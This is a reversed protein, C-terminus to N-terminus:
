YEIASGVRRLEDKGYTGYTGYRGYKEYENISSDGDAM